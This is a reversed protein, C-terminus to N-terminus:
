DSVIIIVSFLRCVIYNSRNCNSNGMVGHRARQVTVRYPLFQRIDNDYLPNGKRQLMIIIRNCQFVALGNNSYEHYLRLISIYLNLFTVHHKREHRGYTRGDSENLESQAANVSVTWM